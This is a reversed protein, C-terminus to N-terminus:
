LNVRVVGVCVFFRKLISWIGDLLDTEHIM